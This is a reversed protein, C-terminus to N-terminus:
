RFSKGLQWVCIPLKYKRGNHPNLLHQLYTYSGKTTEPKLTLEDLRFVDEDTYNANILNSPTLIPAECRVIEFAKNVTKLSNNLNSVILQTFLERKLISQEDWFVLGNSNYLPIM